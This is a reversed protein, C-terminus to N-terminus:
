EHVYNIIIEDFNDVWSSFGLIQCIKSLVDHKLQSEMKQVPIILSCEDDKREIKYDVFPAISKLVDAFGLLSRKEIDYAQYANADVKCSGSDLITFSKGNKVSVRYERPGQYFVQFLGIQNMKSLSRKKGFLYESIIGDCCLGADPFNSGPRMVIQDEEVDMDAIVGCFSQIKHKAWYWEAQSGDFMYTMIQPADKHSQCQRYIPNEKGM